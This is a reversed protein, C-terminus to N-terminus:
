SSFSFKSNATDKLSGEPLGEFSITISKSDNAFILTNQLQDSV